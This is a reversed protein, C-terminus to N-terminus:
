NWNIIKASKPINIRWDLKSLVFNVDTYNIWLYEKMSERVFDIKYPFKIGNIDKYNSFNIEYDINGSDNYSRIRYVLSKSTDIWYEKKHNLSDFTCYLLWSKSFSFSDKKIATDPLIFSGSMLNLLNDFSINVRLIIGLNYDTSPGKIVYNNLVNYYTFEKKTLLLIIGTIGFPGKIKAYCSDPRVIMAFLSGYNSTQTNEFEIDGELEVNRILLSNQNIKKLINKVKITDNQVIKGFSFSNFSFIIILSLLLQIKINFIKSTM